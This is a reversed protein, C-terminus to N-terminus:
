QMLKYHSNEEQLRIEDWDVGHEQLREVAEDITTLGEERQIYRLMRIVDPTTALDSTRTM